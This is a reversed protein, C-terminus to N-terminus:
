AGAPRELLSGLELRLDITCSDPRSRGEWPPSQLPSAAEGALLEFRSGEGNLEFVEDGQTGRLSLRVPAQPAIAPHLCPYLRQLRYRVALAAGDTPMPLERDNLGLRWAARFANNARV